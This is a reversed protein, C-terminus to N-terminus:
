IQERLWCQDHWNILSIEQVPRMRTYFYVFKKSLTDKEEMKKVDHNEVIQFADTITKTVQMKAFYVRPEKSANDYMDM